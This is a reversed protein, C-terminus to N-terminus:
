EGDLMRTLAGFAVLIVSFTLRYDRLAVSQSFNESCKDVM